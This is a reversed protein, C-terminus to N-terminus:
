VEFALMSTISHDMLSGGAMREGEEKQLSAHKCLRTSTPEDHELGKRLPPPQGPGQKEYGLLSLMEKRTIKLGNGKSMAYSQDCQVKCQMGRSEALSSSRANNRHLTNIAPAYM